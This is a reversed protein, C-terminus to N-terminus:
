KAAGYNYQLVKKVELANQTLHLKEYCSLMLLLADQVYPSGEFHRVVLSARNASAVYANKIFYYQAIDLQHKALLNRLYVMYQHAAPAYKSKPFLHVIVAFDAYAKKIQTLDRKSLDVTFLREFVGLNQYYNAVGRLYYVYDVHPSVPYMQIFQNAQAEASPYDSNMYYAYVLHLMATETEPLLPYQVSLAEYHKIAERYSKNRLSKEGEAFIQKATEGKYMDSPDITGACSTLFCFLLLPFSYLFLTMSKM